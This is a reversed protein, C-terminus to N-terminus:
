DREKHYEQAEEWDNFTTWKFVTSGGPVKILPSAFLVAEDLPHLIDPEPEKKSKEVFDARRPIPRARKGAARKWYAITSLNETKRIPKELLYPTTQSSNRKPSFIESISFIITVTGPLQPETNEM